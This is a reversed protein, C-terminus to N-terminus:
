KVEPIDLSKDEIAWGKELYFLATEDDLNYVEGAYFRPTETFKINSEGFNFCTDTMRIRKM